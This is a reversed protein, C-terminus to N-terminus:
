IPHEVSLYLFLGNDGNSPGIGIPFAIGPVIQLGSKFNHAWRVGPNLLWGEVAQTQGAGIVFETRTWATELMFNLNSRMLWIASVGLNLSTTAARQGIANRASPIFTAGANWHTVLKPALTASVPLNVQAGLAGSGFGQVEDGTPLVLSLRPSVSVPGDTGAAQIRYNLLVDGVGTAGPGARLLPITYSLQSRQGGAPWEQVFSYGWTASGWSRQFASIHQIVGKEQNYAEELLFSNDAIPPAANQASAASVAGIVGVIALLGSRKRPLSCDPQTCSSCERM